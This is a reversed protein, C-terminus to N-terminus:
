APARQVTSKNAVKRVRYQLPLRQALERVHTVVGVMRDTGLAELTSAVTDLADPDLTGFGEDLFLAELRVRGAGSRSSVQDALSLALALSALFTEGGSLTRASRAEDGNFRDKVIFNNQEDYDLTYQDNSLGKLRESAGRVLWKLVGKELWRPFRNVRLEGALAGAVHEKRREAEIRREAELRQKRRGREFRLESERRGREGECRAALDESIERPTKTASSEIDFALGQDACRTMLENAKEARRSNVANLKAELKPITKELQLRREAAWTELAKWRRALSASPDEPPAGYQALRSRTTRYESKAADMRRTAAQLRDRAADAEERAIDLASRADRVRKKAEEIRDLSDRIAELKPGKALDECLLREKEILKAAEVECKSLFAEARVRESAEAELQGLRRGVRDRKAACVAAPDEGPVSLEKETAIVALRERLRAAESRQTESARAAAEAEDTLKAATSTRWKLLASWADSLSSELRPPPPEIMRVSDRVENYGARAQTLAEELDTAREALAEYSLEAEKMRANANRLREGAKREEAILRLAAEEVPPDKVELAPGAADQMRDLLTARRAALREGSEELVLRTRREGRRAAELAAEADKLERAGEDEEEARGSLDKVPQGCVPCAEGEQLSSAIDLAAYTRRANRIVSEADRTERGAASAESERLERARREEKWEQLLKELADADPLRRWAEEARRAAEKREELETEGARLADATARDRSLLRKVEDPFRLESLQELRRALEAAAAASESSKKELADLASAIKAIAEGARTLGRLEGSLEEVADPTAHALEGLREKARLVEQTATARRERLGELHTWQELARRLEPESGLKNLAGEEQALSAKRSEVVAAATAQAKTEREYEQAARQAEEPVVVDRLEEILQGRLKLKKSLDSRELALEKIRERAERAIERLQEIAELRESAVEVAEQTATALDGGLQIREELAARDRAHLAARANAARQLREYLELGLLRALLRQREKPRARLFRSFEGQPLVVCRTFHELKLGVVDEEVVRTVGKADRALTETGRELVAERTTAGANTRQVERVATFREEGVSFELSVRANSMGQSIVPAVLGARGYRPVSGYLAFVIADILSSKGSGTPGTFAFLNAGKFCVETRDRFSTFGRLELRLPRM